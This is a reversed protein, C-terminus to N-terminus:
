RFKSVSQWLTVSIRACTPVFYRSEKAHSSLLANLDVGPLLHKAFGAKAGRRPATLKQFETPSLVVAVVKGASLITVPEKAAEKWLKGINNRAESANITVM